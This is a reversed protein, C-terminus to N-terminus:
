DGERNVQRSLVESMKETLISRIYEKNPGDGWMTSEESSFFGEKMLQAMLLTIFEKKAVAAASVPAEAQPAAVPQSIAPTVAVPSIPGRM